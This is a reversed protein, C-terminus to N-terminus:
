KCVEEPTPLIDKDIFRKDVGGQLTGDESVGEHMTEVRKNWNALKTKNWDMMIKLEKMSLEYSEKAEGINQGVYDSFTQLFPGPDTAIEENQWGDQTFLATYRKQSDLYLDAKIKISGMGLSKGTGLKYVIDEKGTSIAFVKLLAGLEVRTLNRFHIKSQFTNGPLLPRIRRSVNDISDYPETKWGYMGRDQHWYMKYGRIKQTGVDWNKPPWQTQKLYLQYSTPNAGLQPKIYNKDAFEPKGNLIADEFSVRGAWFEKRGFVADAFDIIRENELAPEVRDGISHNYPIRYCPGHGFSIIHNGEQAYFCPVLYDIDPNNSFEEAKKGMKAAEANKANKGIKPILEVGTQNKDARYGEIVDPSVSYTVKWNPQYMYRIFTKKPGLGTLIYALKEKDDWFICSVEEVQKHYKEEYESMDILGLKCPAIRYGNEGKKRFLFGPLTSYEVHNHGGKKIFKSPMRQKYYDHLEKLQPMSNPAMLCRFYLRKDVFDEDRRMTGATIIKFLNRVMGRISSGPIVPMGTPSFFEGDEGAGIFLPTLTQLYLQITGSFTEQSQIYERFIRQREEQSLGNWNKGQNLQSPLVHTATSVFNYPATAAWHLKNGM